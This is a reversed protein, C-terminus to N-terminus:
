PRANILNKEWLEGLSYDDLWSSYDARSLKHFVSQDGERNVTWVQDPTLHNILTVSQTGVIVQTRESAASLLDALL